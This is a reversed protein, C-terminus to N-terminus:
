REACCNGQPAARHDGARELRERGKKHYKEIGEALADPIKRHSLFQIQREHEEPSMHYPETPTIRVIKYDERVKKAMLGLGPLEPSLIGFLKDMPLPDDLYSIIESLFFAPKTAAVYKITSILQNEAM